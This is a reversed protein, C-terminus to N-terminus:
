TVQVLSSLSSASHPNFGPDTQGFSSGGRGRYERRQGATSRHVGGSTVEDLGAPGRHGSPSETAEFAPLPHHKVCGQGPVTPSPMPPAPAPVWSGPSFLPWPRQRQPWTEFMGWWQGGIPFARLVPLDEGALMAPCGCLHGPEGGSPQVLWGVRPLQLVVEERIRHPRGTLLETPM